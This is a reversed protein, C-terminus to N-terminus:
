AVPGPPTARTRVSSQNVQLSQGLELKKPQFGSGDRVRPQCVKAAHVLEPMQIHPARLHRVGTEGM